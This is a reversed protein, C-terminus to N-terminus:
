RGARQTFRFVSDTASGAVPAGAGVRLTHTTDGPTGRESLQYTLGPRFPQWPQQAHARPAALLSATALLAVYHNRM